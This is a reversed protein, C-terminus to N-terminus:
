IWLPWLLVFAISGLPELAYEHKDDRARLAIGTAVYVVCAWAFVDRM